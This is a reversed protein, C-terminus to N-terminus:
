PQQAGLGVGPLWSEIQKTPGLDSTPVGSQAQLAEYTWSLELFHLVEYTQYVWYNDGGIGLFTERKM